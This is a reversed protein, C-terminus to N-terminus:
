TLGPALRTISHNKPSTATTAIPTPRATCWRCSTPTPFLGDSSPSRGRGPGARGLRGARRGSVADGIAGFAGRCTRSPTSVEQARRVAGARRVTGSTRGVSLGTPRRSSVWTAPQRGARTWASRGVRVPREADGWILVLSGARSRVAVRGATRTCPCGGGARDNRTVGRHRPSDRSRFAHDWRGLCPSREGQAVVWDRDDVEAAPRARPVNGDSAPREPRARHRWRRSGVWGRQLAM